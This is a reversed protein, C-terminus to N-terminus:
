VCDNSGLYGGEDEWRDLNESRCVTCLGTAAISLKNNVDRYLRRCQPCPTPNMMNHNGVPDM